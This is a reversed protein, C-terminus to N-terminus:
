MAHGGGSFHKCVNSVDSIASNIALPYFCKNYCFVIPM